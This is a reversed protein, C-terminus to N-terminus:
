VLNGINVKQGTQKISVRTNFVIGDMPEYVYLSCDLITCTEDSDTTTQGFDIGAGLVRDTWLYSQKLVGWSERLYYMAPKSMM